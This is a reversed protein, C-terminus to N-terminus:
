GFRRVFESVNISGSGSTNVKRFLSDVHASTLDPRYASVMRNFEVMDMSQNNNLDLRRFVETITMGSRGVSLCSRVTELIEAEWPQEVPPAYYTPMVGYAPSVPTTPVIVGSGVPTPPVMGSARSREIADNFFTYFENINMYGDGNVDFRSFVADIHADTMSTDFARVARFWEERTLAGDGNRDFVNFVDYVSQGSTSLRDGLRKIIGEMSVLAPGNAREICSTFENIDVDGSLDRDFRRFIAQRETMSLDPQFSLIVRELEQWSLRGNSDLDVKNFLQVANFGTRVIAAGIRGVVDDVRREAQLHPAIVQPGYGIGITRGSGRRLDDEYWSRAKTGKTAPCFQAAFEELSIRNDGNRDFRKFVQWLTQSLQQTSYTGNDDLCMQIGRNFEDWTVTKSHDRDLLDFAQSLTMNRNYFYEAILQIVQDGALGRLDSSQAGM